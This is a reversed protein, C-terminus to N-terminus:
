RSANASKRDARRQKDALAGSLGDFPQRAEARVLTKRLNMCVVAGNVLAITALALLMWEASTITMVDQM